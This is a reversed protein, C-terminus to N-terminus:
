TRDVRTSDIIDLLFQRALDAQSAAEQARRHYLEHTLAHNQRLADAALSEFTAARDRLARVASWLATEIREGSQRLLDRATSAHGLYCRFRRHHEDGVDWMPGGCDPCSLEVRRGLRNMTAANTPGSRDIAAELDITAAPRPPTPPPSRAAAAGALRRLLPGIADLTVVHDPQMADLARAPLEPFAARNPDQVVTLGGASQIDRLGAVGDDMLGTMLVGVTRAGRMAAASRFLRDISPRAHNERPGGVLRLHDDEVLLHVNPPAVYARGREIRAGQEAWAVPMTTARRLIEVFYPDHSPSLHQVILVAAPLKADLPALVQPLADVGGASTGIAITDRRAAEHSADTM